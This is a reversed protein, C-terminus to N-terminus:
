SGRQQFLASLRMQERKLRQLDETRGAREYTQLIQSLYQGAQANTPDSELVRILHGEAEPLKGDRLLMYGLLLNGLPFDPKLELVKRVQEEAEARRGLEFLCTALSQRWYYYEPRLRVAEEFQERAEDRRGALVLALGYQNHARDNLPRHEVTHAWLTEKSHYLLNREHTRWALVGAVVALLVWGVGAAAGAGLRKALARGVTAYGGLVVLAVVAALPLYMRHEAYVETIIPVVSTTPSLILLFAAGLFGLAPRKVLAWLTGVVLAALLAIGPLVETWSEVPVPWGYDFVQPQPWFALRLYLGWADFQNLVYTSGAVWEMDFGVSDQRAGTVFVLWVLLVWTAALSAYFWPRRAVATFRGDVLTADLLWVVVPATVMVEKCAMGALCAFWAGVATATRGSVFYRVSLYLTALYALGMLSEVRQVTYTVSETQLPHLSWLLAVAFALGDAAGGFRARLAPLRLVRRVLGFLLLTALLHVGLNFAHYGAPEFEGLAYNVALSLSPLPRTELTTMRPAKLAETLPSLSRVHPNTLIAEEDDFVFIGEFSSEYALYGAVLLFLAALLARGAGPRASGAEGPAPAGERSETGKAM